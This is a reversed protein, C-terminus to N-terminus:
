PIRPNMAFPAAILRSREDATETGACVAAGCAAVGFVVVAFGALAADVLDAATEVILM